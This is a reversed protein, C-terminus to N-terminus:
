NGNYIILKEINEENEIKIKNIKQSNKNGIFLVQNHNVKIKSEQKVDDFFVKPMSNKYIIDVQIDKNIKKFHPININDINVCFSIFFSIVALFLFIIGNQLVKKM